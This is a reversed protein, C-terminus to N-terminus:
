GRRGLRLADLLMFLLPWLLMGLLPAWWYNWPLSPEGLAMHIATTVIRDNLLLGGIALSQQSVPFFRLRARFRQLIFTMIVMRLAQEGLLSGFMLDAILGVIVAFGLGAYDPAEIVWYALVLALWYPRLPQLTEPLPLLGLLLAVVISLPLIWGVRMRSM